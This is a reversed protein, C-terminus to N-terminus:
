RARIQVIRRRLPLSWDAIARRIKHALFRLPRKSIQAARYVGINRVIREANRVNDHEMKRITEALANGSFIQDFYQAYNDSVEKVKEAISDYDAWIIFESYPIAEKLPVDESVVVCGCLLAPLVRLEEFTHHHPTQHINVLVRTDTYLESIEESSFRGRENVCNLGRARMDDLLRKRRPENENNFTTVVQRSRAARTIAQQDYAYLVPSICACKELYSQLKGYREINVLNPMSYEIVFDQWSFFGYNEIRVLYPTGDAAMVNGIIAGDANRGGQKVLTHEYQLAVRYTKNSNAFRPKCDGLMLNVAVPSKGLAQKLLELCYLYYHRVYVMHDTDYAIASGNVYEIATTAAYDKQDM